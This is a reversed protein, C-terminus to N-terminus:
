DTGRRGGRLRREQGIFSRQSTGFDLFRRHDSRRDRHKLFRCQCTATMTCGTLPLQPADKALFRHDSFRKALPCAHVGRYISIAQFPRPALKPALVPPTKRLRSLLVDLLSKRERRAM